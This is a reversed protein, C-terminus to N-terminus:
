QIVEGGLQKMGVEFSVRTRTSSKEFILALTKGRLPKDREGRPDDRKVAAARDLIDRLTGRDVEHLDLFHKVEAMIDAQRPSRRAPQRGAPPSRKWFKSRWISKRSRSSSRPCC